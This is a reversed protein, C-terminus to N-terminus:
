AGKELLVEQFLMFLLQEEVGSLYHFLELKLDIELVL